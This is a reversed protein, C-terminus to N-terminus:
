SWTCSLERLIDDLASEEDSAGDVTILRITYQEPDVDGTKISELLEELGELDILEGDRELEAMRNFKDNESEYEEPILDRLYTFIENM